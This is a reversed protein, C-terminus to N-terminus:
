GYFINKQTHYNSRFSINEVLREVLPLSHKCHECMDPATWWFVVKEDCHPCKFETKGKMMGKEHKVIRLSM